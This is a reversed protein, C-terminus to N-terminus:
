HPRFWPCKNLLEQSPTRDCHFGVTIGDTKLEKCDQNVDYSRTDTPDPIRNCDGVKVVRSRLRGDKRRGVKMEIPLTEGEAHKVICQAFEKGGRIIKRNEGPCEFFDTEVDVTLPSGDKDTRNVFIRNLKVKSTYDLKEGCGPLALVVLM